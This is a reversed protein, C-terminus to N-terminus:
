VEVERSMSSLVTTCVLEGNVTATASCKLLKHRDSIVRAELMLQDGPEVMRKFKTEGVGALLFLKSRADEPSLQTALLACSQALAEVILVGPMIPRSPFHGNFFAENITVNKLAKLFKEEKNVEIIRDVLLFPYRHPLSNLIQQINLM